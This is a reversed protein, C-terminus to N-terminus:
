GMEKLIFELEIAPTQKQYHEQSGKHMQWEQKRTNGIIRDVYVRTDDIAPWFTARHM